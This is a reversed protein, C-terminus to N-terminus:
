KAMRAKINKVFSYLQLIKVRFPIVRIWIWQFFLNEFSWKKLWKGKRKVAIVVAKIQSASIPGEIFQQGDGVMKFTEKNVSWVRHLVFKGTPRRFLVIDGKKIAHDKSSELLVFDRQACLFPTMSSGSIPIMAQKGTQLIKVIEDLYEETNVYRLQQEYKQADM